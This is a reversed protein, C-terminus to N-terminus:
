YQFELSPKAVSPAPFGYGLCNVWATMMRLWANCVRPHFGLWIMIMPSDAPELRMNEVRSCTIQGQGCTVWCSLSDSGSKMIM